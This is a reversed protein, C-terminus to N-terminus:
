FIIIMHCLLIYDSSLVNRFKCEWLVILKSTTPGEDKLVIRLSKSFRIRIYGMKKVKEMFINAGPIDTSKLVEIIKNLNTTELSILMECLYDRKGRSVEACIIKLSPAYFASGRWARALKHITYPITPYIIGKRNGRYLSGLKIWFDILNQNEDIVNSENDNKTTKGSVFQFEKTNVLMSKYIHEM